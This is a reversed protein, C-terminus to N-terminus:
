RIARFEVRVVPVDTALAGIGLERGERRLAVTSLDPAGGTLSWGDAVLQDAVARVAIGANRDVRYTAVLMPQGEFDVQSLGQRHWDAPLSLESLERELQWADYSAVARPWALWGGM